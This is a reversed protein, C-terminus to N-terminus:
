RLVDFVTIKATKTTPAFDDSASDNTSVSVVKRARGSGGDGFVSGSRTEDSHLCVFEEDRVSDDGADRQGAGAAARQITGREPKELLYILLYCFRSLTLYSLPM